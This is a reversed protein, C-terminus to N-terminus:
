DVVYSLTIFYDKNTAINSGANQLSFDGNAQITATAPTGDTSIIGHQVTVLPRMTDPMTFLTINSTASLRKIGARVTVTNGRRDAIIPNPTILAGDATLTLTARGNKDAFAIDKGKYKFVNEGVSLSTAQSWPSDGWGLYCMGKDVDSARYFGLGAVNTATAEDRYLIGRASPTKPMLQRILGITGITLEGTLTDGTKKVLNDANVTFTGDINRVWFYKSSVEDWAYFKNTADVGLAVKRTNDSGQLFIQKNNNFTLNGDMTGGKSDILREWAGWTAGTKRRVWTGLNSGTLTTARQLVYNVDQYKIVEIYLYDQNPANALKPGGYIGSEQINNLDDGERLQTTRGNPQLWGKYIENNKVLNTDGLFTLTKSTASYNFVDINNVKDQWAVAGSNTGVLKHLDAGAVTKFSLGNSGATPVQLALEGTMTGGTKPLAGKALEGAAIIGDIDVGEFKKGAEIAKQIITFENTSEIAEDSALSDNVVFFFKQTDIIRDEEEIHIQAIVNGVATLTQTKLLIQYKGKMANIPQCDEQFVYTGDPKKFSMRVSKAQSLDLEAGKNTITVLLKASNRDNQSFRNSRTTSTDNVLDVNIEYTKFIM